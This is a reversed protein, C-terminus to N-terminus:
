NRSFELSSADRVLDGMRIGPDGAPLRVFSGAFLEIEEVSLSLCLIALLYGDFGLCRVTVGHCRLTRFQTALEQIGRFDIHTVARWDIVVTQVEAPMARLKAVLQSLDSKGLMGAPRECWDEHKRIRSEM